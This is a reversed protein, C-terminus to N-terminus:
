SSGVLPAVLFRGDADRMLHPSFRVVRSLYARFNESRSTYGSARVRNAIENLTLPMDAELCVALVVTKLPIRHPPPLAQEVRQLAAAAKAGELGLLQISDTLVPAVRAVAAGWAIHGKQLTQTLARRSHAILLMGGVGILLMLQVLSPLRTFGRALTAAFHIGLHTAGTLLITISYGGLKITIVRSEARAYDRLHRMIDPSVTSAGMAAIDGDHSVIARAGIQALLWIFTLDNPDIVPQRSVASAPPVACFRLYPQYAEWAQRLRDEPIGRKQALRPLHKEVETYLWNPAFAIITGSAVVEQLATRASSDKRKGTLWLLDALVINTDIILLIQRPVGIAQALQPDRAIRRRLDALDDSRVQLNSM